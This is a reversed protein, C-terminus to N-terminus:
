RREEEPTAAEELMAKVARRHDLVERDEVDIRMLAKLTRIIYGGADELIGQGKSIERRYRHIDDWDLDDPRVLYYGRDRLKRAVVRASIVDVGAAHLEAEMPLPDTTAM